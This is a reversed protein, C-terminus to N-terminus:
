IPFISLFPWLRLSSTNLPQKPSFEISTQLGPCFFIFLHLLCVRSHHKPLSLLKFPIPTSFFAFRSSKPTISHLQLSDLYRQPLAPMLPGLLSKLLHSWIGIRSPSQTQPPNILGSPPVKLRALFQLYIPPSHILSSQFSICSLYPRQPM